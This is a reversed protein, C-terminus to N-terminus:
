IQESCLMKPDKKLCRTFFEKCLSNVPVNSSWGFFGSPYYKIIYGYWFEKINPMDAYIAHYYCYQMKELYTVM